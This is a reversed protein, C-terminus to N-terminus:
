PWGVRRCGWRGGDDFGVGGLLCLQVADCQEAVKARGICRMRQNAQGTAGGLRDFDTIGQSAAGNRGDTGIAQDQRPHTILLNQPHRLALGGKVVHVRGRMDRGHCLFGCQDCAGRAAKTGGESLRKRRCMVDDSHAARDACEFLKIVPDFGKAAAGCQCRHVDCVRRGHLGQTASNIVAPAAKIHPQVRCDMGGWHCWGMVDTCFVELFGDSAVDRCRRRQDVIYGGQEAFVALRHKEIVRNRTLFEEATEASCFRGLDGEGAAPLDLCGADARADLDHCWLGHWCGGAGTEVRTFAAFSQM